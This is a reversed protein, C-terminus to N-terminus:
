PQSFTLMGMASGWREVLSSPVLFQNSPDVTFKSGEETDESIESFVSESVAEGSELLDRIPRTTELLENWYAHSESEESTVM